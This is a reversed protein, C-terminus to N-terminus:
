KINNVISQFGQRNLFKDSHMICDKKNELCPYWKFFDPHLEQKGGHSIITAKSKFQVPTESKVIIEYKGTSGGGLGDELKIQVEKKIANTIVDGNPLM